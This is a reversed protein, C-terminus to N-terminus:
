SSLINYKIKPPIIKYFTIIGPGNTMIGRKYGLNKCKYLGKQDTEHWISPLNDRIDPLNMKLKKIEKLTYLKNEDIRGEAYLLRSGRGNMEYQTQGTITHRYGYFLGLMYLKKRTSGKQGGNVIIVPESSKFKKILTDWFSNNHVKYVPTKFLDYLNINKTYKSLLFLYRKLCLEVFNPYSKFLIMLMNIYRSNSPKGSTVVYKAIKLDATHSFLDGM